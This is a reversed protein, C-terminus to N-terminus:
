DRQVQISVVIGSATHVASHNEQAVLAAFLTTAACKYALPPSLSVTVSKSAGHDAWTGSTTNVTGVYTDAEADTVAYAGNETGPAITTTFFHLLMDTDVLDDHDIFTVRLIAGTGGSTVAANAFELDDTDMSDGATYAPTTSLTPTVTIVTPTSFTLQNGASDILFTALGEYTGATASIDADNVGDSPIVRMSGTANVQPPVYDLTTGALTGPTDNRVALMMVGTDGSAHAADEAKGLATATTGPIVRTVDVDLGNTAEAPILTASGDTSIALKVVQAHGSGTDDTLITTGSGATVAVGDAM